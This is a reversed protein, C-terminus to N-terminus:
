EGQEEERPAEGWEEIDIDLNDAIMYRYVLADTLEEEIRERNNENVGENYFIKFRPRM